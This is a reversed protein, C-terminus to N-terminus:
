VIQVCIATGSYAQDKEDICTNGAHNMSNPLTLPHRPARLTLLIIAKGGDTERESRWLDM